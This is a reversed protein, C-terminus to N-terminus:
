IEGDKQLAELIMALEEKRAERELFADHSRCESHEYIKDTLGLIGRVLDEHKQDHKAQLEELEEKDDRMGAIFEDVLGKVDKVAKNKPKKIPPPISDDQM